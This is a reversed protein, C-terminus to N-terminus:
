DAVLRETEPDYERQRRVLYTGETLQIPDHEDHTLFTAKKVDLLRDTPQPVMGGGIPMLAEQVSFGEVADEEAYLSCVSADLRHAHGTVEGYALVVGLNKDPKMAEAEERIKADEPLKIILVDGQRYHEM